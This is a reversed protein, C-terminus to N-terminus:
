VGSRFLETLVFTPAPEMNARGELSALAASCPPFCSPIFLFPYICIWCLVFIRTRTKCCNLEILANASAPFSTGFNPDLMPYVFQGILKADLSCLAERESVTRENALAIAIRVAAVSTREAKRMELIYLNGDEITYEVTQM